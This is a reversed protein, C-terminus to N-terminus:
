KFQVYNIGGASGQGNMVPWQQPAYDGVPSMCSNAPVATMIEGRRNTGRASDVAAGREGVLRVTVLGDGQGPLDAECSPQLGAHPMCTSRACPLTSDSMTPPAVPPPALDWAGSHRPLMHPESRNLGGPITANLPFPKAATSAAASQRGGAQTISAPIQPELSCAETSSPPITYHLPTLSPQGLTQSWEVHGGGGKELHRHSERAGLARDSLRLSHRRMIASRQAEGGENRGDSPSINGGVRHITVGNSVRAPNEGLLANSPPSEGMRTVQGELQLLRHELLQVTAPGFTGVIGRPSGPSSRIESKRRLNPDSQRQRDLLAPASDLTEVAADTKQSGSDNRLPCTGYVSM